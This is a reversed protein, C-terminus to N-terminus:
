AEYAIRMPSRSMRAIRGTAAVHPAQFSARIRLWESPQTATPLSGAGQMTPVVFRWGSIPNKAQHPISRQTGPRITEPKSTPRPRALSTGGGQPLLPTLAERRQRINQSATESAQVGRM